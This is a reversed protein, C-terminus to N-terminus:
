YIFNHTIGNRLKIGSVTNNDIIIKDIVLGIFDKILQKDTSMVLKRYDVEDKLFENNLIFHSALDMFTDDHVINTNKYHTSIQKNIGDLKEIISHKQILYDKESMANDDFLYLDQLRDIAREYKEKEKILLSTDLNNEVKKEVTPSYPITNFLYSYTDELGNREIGVINDIGKLLLSEMGKLSTSRKMKSKLSVLNSLYQLISPAIKVDSTVNTNACGFKFTMGQCIYISPRFGDKRAVDLRAIFNRGCDKCVMMGSFLHVHGNQRFMSTNRKANVDMIQNCIEWQDTSIIAPHNDDIVIWEKKDKIKGRAANRYNYRYTGKYFPNRIIDSVTKSTWRGGRKTKIKNENLLIMLKYSSKLSEYQDYISQIILAEGEDIQPFDNGDLWKYGLPVNAGNWLGKEARSLMVSSVRESTLNRELEAFVLIIKLMAEGMASSTDFQENKSIFIINYEKMEEYMKAFDILNRSIRDIKWVLLHTFEGERIRKMMDQYSPRITNKGSYGADEFIEYNDIGLLYKSYNILEQRQFPLSDKDVQHMTSVRVYLAAKM